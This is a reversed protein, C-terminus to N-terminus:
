IQQLILLTEAKWDAFTAYTDKNEELLAAEITDFHNSINQGNGFLNNEGQSLDVSDFAGVPKTVNKAM